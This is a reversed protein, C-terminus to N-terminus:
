NDIVETDPDHWIWKADSCTLIRTGGLNSHVWIKFILVNINVMHLEDNPLCTGKVSFPRINKAYVFQIKLFSIFSSAEGPGAM